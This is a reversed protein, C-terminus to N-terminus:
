PRGPESESAPSDETPYPAADPYIDSWSAAQQETRSREAQQVAATIAPGIQEATYHRRITADLRLETLHGHPNVTVKIMGDPSSARGTIAQMRESASRLEDAAELFRALAAEQAQEHTGTGAADTGPTPEDTELPTWTFGSTAPTGAEDETSTPPTPSAAGFEALRAQAEEASGPRFPTEKNLLRDLRSPEDPM